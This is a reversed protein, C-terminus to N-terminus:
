AKLEEFGIDNAAVVVKEIRRKDVERSFLLPSTDPVLPNVRPFGHPIIASPGVTAGITLFSTCNTCREITTVVQPNLVVYFKITSNRPINVSEGCIKKLRFGKYLLLLSLRM